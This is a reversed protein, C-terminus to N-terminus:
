PSDTYCSQFHYTIPHASAIRGVILISSYCAIKYAETTPISRSVLLGIGAMRAKLVMDAAIRGSTLLASSGFDINDLLARGLVKDVANHRGVDERVAFYEPQTDGDQAPKTRTALAAVHMGGTKRYLEASAFMKAAWEALVSVPLNMIPALLGLASRQVKSKEGRNEEDFSAAGCASFVLGEDHALAGKGSRTTISVSRYDPRVSFSILDDKTKIIGRSFIHGLALEDVDFPSCLLIAIRAGDVYVSIPTEPALPLFTDQV